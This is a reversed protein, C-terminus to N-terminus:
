TALAQLSGARRCPAEAGLVHADHLDAQGTPGTVPGLWSDPPQCRYRQMLDLRRYVERSADGDPPTVTARFAPATGFAPHRGHSRRIGPPGAPMCPTTFHCYRAARRWVM